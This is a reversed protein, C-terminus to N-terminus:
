FVWGTYFLRGVQCVYIDLLGDGNIDVVSAGTTWGGQGADIDTKDSVDEFKLDGKNLFLKEKGLNSTFYIDVFGDNNFDGTAVGAGNYYYMYNFINLDLEVPLNNSFDIGTRNEGQVIFAYDKNPYDDQNCSFIFLCFLLSLYAPVNIFTRCSM